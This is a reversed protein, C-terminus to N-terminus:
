NSICNKLHLFCFRSHMDLNIPGWLANLNFKVSLQHSFYFTQIKTLFKKFLKKDEDQIQFLHKYQRCSNKYYIVHVLTHLTLHTGKNKCSFNIQDLLNKVFLETKLLFFLFGICTIIYDILKTKTM